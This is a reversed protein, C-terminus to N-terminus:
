TRGGLIDTLAADLCDLEFTLEDHAASIPEATGQRLAAELAQASTAVAAFALNSATGRLTHAWQAAMEVEGRKLAQALAARRDPLSDRFVRLVERVLDEDLQLRDRMLAPDYIANTRETRPSPTEMGGNHLVSGAAAM